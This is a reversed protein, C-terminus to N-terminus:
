KDYAEELRALMLLAAEKEANKRNMARATTPEAFLAIHCAVTFEQSHAEGEIAVIKYQPLPHRRAQLWEQLQTKPDKEGSGLSLDAMRGELCRLVFAKAQEMGSDAYIAGIVAELADALISTRAAGGSRLEGEGLLLHTGLDIERAVEALTEGKVLHARLRSLDGEPAHPFQNFLQEAITFNLISDGLFELRENNHSGYSRHTLATKLLSPDRFEYGLKKDLLGSSNSRRQVKIKVPVVANVRVPHISSM